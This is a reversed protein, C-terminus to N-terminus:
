REHSKLLESSPIVDALSWVYDDLKVLDLDIVRHNSPTHQVAMLGGVHKEVRFVGLDEFKDCNKKLIRIISGVHSDMSELKYM